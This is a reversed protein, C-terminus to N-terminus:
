RGGGRILAIVLIAATALAPGFPAEHCGVVGRRQAPLPRTGVVVVQLVVALGGVLVVGVPALVGIGLGLLVGFKVDGYGMGAPAALHAILLWV